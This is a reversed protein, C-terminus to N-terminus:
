IDAMTFIHPNDIIAEYIGTSLLSISHEDSNLDRLDFRCCIGHLMERIFTENINHQPFRNAIKIVEGDFDINGYLEANAGAIEEQRKIDYNKLGIKVNNIPKSTKKGM